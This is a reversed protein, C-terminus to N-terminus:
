KSKNKFPMNMKNAILKSFKEKYFQRVNNKPMQQQQQFSQLYM